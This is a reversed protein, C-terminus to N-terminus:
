FINSIRLHRIGQSTDKTHFDFFFGTNGRHWSKNFAGPLCIPMLIGNRCRWFPHHRFGMPLSTPSHSPITKAINRNLFPFHHSIYSPNDGRGPHWHCIFTQLNPDGVLFMIIRSTVPMRPLPVVWSIAQLHPIRLFSPCRIWIPYIFVAWHIIECFCSGKFCAAM